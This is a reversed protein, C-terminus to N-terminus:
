AMAKRKARIFAVHHPIHPTIRKLLNELTMKGRTSHLGTRQFDEDALSRLIRGMQSRLADVIALEEDVDRADYALRAAFANQDSGCLPPNEEAIVRKMRDAFVMEYDALHCVVQRTSWQGTIPRADSQEATMGAVAERLLAPGALYEAILHDHQM